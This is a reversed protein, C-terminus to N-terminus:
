ADVPELIVVPIERSTAAEYDAFGPYDSKQRAWIPEREVSEATRARFRLTDTGVEAALDPHAVLNRYWDPHTDAGAKSAFVALRGDGLDQYMMPNVREQGSRAGTTHLLLLPAGEFNGGVRGGNARFEEIIQDNWNNTDSMDLAEDSDHDYESVVTLLRADRDVPARHWHRSPRRLRSQQTDGVAPSTGAVM